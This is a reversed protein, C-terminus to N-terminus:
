GLLKSGPPTKKEIFDISLSLNNETRETLQPVPYNDNMYADTMVIKGSEVQSKFDELKKISTNLWEVTQQKQKEDKMKQMANEKTRDCLKKWQIDTYFPSKITHLLCNGGYVNIDNGNDFDHSWEHMEDFFCHGYEKGTVVM